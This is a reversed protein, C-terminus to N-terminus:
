TVVTNYRVEFSAVFASLQRYYEDIQAIREDKKSLSKMFGADSEKQVFNYVSVLISAIAPTWILSFRGLILAGVYENLNHLAAPTETESLQGAHCAANLNKLLTDISSALVQLQARSEKAQKVKSSILKATFVAGDLYSSIRESPSAIQINYNVYINQNQVDNFTGHSADAHQANSFAM